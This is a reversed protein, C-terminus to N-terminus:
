LHGIGVLGHESYPMADDVFGYLTYIELLRHIFNELHGVSLHSDEQKSPLSNAILLIPQASKKGKKSLGNQLRLRRANITSSDKSTNASSALVKKM